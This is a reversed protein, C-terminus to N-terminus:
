CFSSSVEVGCYLSRNRLGLV